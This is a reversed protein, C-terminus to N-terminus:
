KSPSIQIGFKEWRCPLCFLGDESCIGSDKKSPLMLWSTTVDFAKGAADYVMGRWYWVSPCGNQWVGHVDDYITTLSVHIRGTGGLWIDDPADEAFCAAFGAACYWFEVDADISHTFDKSNGPNLREFNNKTDIMGAVLVQGTEDDWQGWAWQGPEWEYFCVGPKDCTPAPYSAWKPRQQALSLATFSVYVSAIMLFYRMRRM